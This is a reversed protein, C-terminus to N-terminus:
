VSLLMVNMAAFGAVALCRLLYQMQEADARELAGLEFPRAIYGLPALTEAVSRPEFAEDLWRVRLRRTAYNLRATPAGPLAAAAALQSNYALGDEYPHAEVEGRFTSLADYAM